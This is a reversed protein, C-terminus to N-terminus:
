MIFGTLTKAFVFPFKQSGSISHGLTKCGDTLFRDDTESQSQLDLVKNQTSAERYSQLLTQMGLYDPSSAAQPSLPLAAKSPCLGDLNGFSVLFM